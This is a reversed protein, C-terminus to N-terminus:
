VGYSDIIEKPEQSVDMLGPVSLQMKAALEYQSIRAAIEPDGFREGAQRNLAEVADFVDAQRGASVGDPNAIYNM